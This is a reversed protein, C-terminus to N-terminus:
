PPSGSPMAATSNSSARVIRPQSRLRPRLARCSGEVRFRGQADATVTEGFACGLGLKHAPGPRLDLCPAQGGGVAPRRRRRAAGHDRGRPRAQGGAARHIEPRRGQARGGRRAQPGQAHLGGASSPGAGPGRGRLYRRRADPLGDGGTAASLGYASAGVVPRGDPGTLRGARSLGRTLELDVAVPGAGAPVDIFRYTHHGVLWAHLYGTTSGTEGPGGGEPPRCVYPDDTGDVAAAGAIMGRGPPVTLGFAADALRSFGLSDGTAVNDPAKIYEVEAPPVVRGTAKDVLRGTVIVGPPVEIAAEIPKLGKPTM